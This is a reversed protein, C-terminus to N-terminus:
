RTVKRYRPFVPTWSCEANGTSWFIPLTNNPINHAFGLLLQCDGFGLPEMPSLKEGYRECMARAFDRRFPTEPDRFYRSAKDLCRFSEDLECVAQVDDFLTERRVSNLGVETAFLPFYSLRVSPNADKIQRLLARSYKRAQTGSGCFDDLFVLRRVHRLFKRRGPPGRFLEHPSLFLKTSLENEQRFYYLLHTGSESPNGMALFRTSRLESSYAPHLIAWDRTNGNAQRLNALLPQQFLDRYLSRLLARTLPLSFYSFSSLLFLAYAQESAPDEHNGSFNALWKEVDLWNVTLRWMLRDLTKVKQQLDRSM